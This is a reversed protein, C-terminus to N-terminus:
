PMGMQPKAAPITFQLTGQDIPHHNVNVLQILVKHPGPQLGNLIVPEGSADAWVWSADDVTVHVHGIPSLRCACCARVGARHASEGHSISHSGPWAIAIRCSASRYHNEGATRKSAARCCSSWAGGERNAGCSACCGPLRRHGGCERTEVCKPHNSHVHPRPGGQILVKRQVAHRAALQISPESIRPQQGYQSRTSISAMLSRSIADLIRM